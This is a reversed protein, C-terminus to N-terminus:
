EGNWSSLCRFAALSASSSIRWRFRVLGTSRCIRKKTELSLSVRGTDRRTSACLLPLSHGAPPAYTRVTKTPIYAGRASAGGCQTWPWCRLTVESCPLCLLAIKLGKGVIYPPSWFSCAVSKTEILPLLERADGCEVTNVSLM